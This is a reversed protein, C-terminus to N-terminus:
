VTSILPSLIGVNNFSNGSFGDPGPSSSSSMSFVTSRVQDINPIAGLALNDDETVIRPLCRIASFDRCTTNQTFQQEFFHVAEAAIDNINELWTGDQDKVRTLM